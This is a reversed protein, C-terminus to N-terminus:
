LHNSCSRHPFFFFSYRIDFISCPIDFTSPLSFLLIFFSLSLIFISLLHAAPATEKWLLRDHHRAMMRCWHFGACVFKRLMYPGRASPGSPRRGEVNPTGQENNSIGAAPPEKKLRLRSFLKSYRVGDNLIFFTLRLFFIKWNVFSFIWYGDQFLTIERIM